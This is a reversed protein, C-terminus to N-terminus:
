IRPVNRKNKQQANGYIGIYTAAQARKKRLLFRVGKERYTCISFTTRRINFTFNEGVYWTSTVSSSLYNREFRVVILTNNIINKKIRISDVVYPNM